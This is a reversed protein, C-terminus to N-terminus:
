DIKFVRKRGITGLGVLASGMLWFSAPLPVAPTQSLSGQLRVSDGKSLTLTLVSTMTECPDGISCFLTNTASWNQVGFGSTISYASGIDVNKSVQNSSTTIDWSRMINGNGNAPTIKAGGVNNVDTLTAILNASSNIVGSLTPLMPTNYAITYVQNFATNNNLTLDFSLAPDIDFALNEVNFEASSGWQGGNKWRLTGNLDSVFGTTTWLASSSLDWAKSGETGALVNGNDDVQQITVGLGVTAAFATNATAVFGALALAAILIKKNAISGSM